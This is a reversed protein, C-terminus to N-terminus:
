SRSHQKVAEGAVGRLGLVGGTRAGRDLYNMLSTSLRAASVNLAVVVPRVCKTM